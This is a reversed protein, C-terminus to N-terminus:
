LRIQVASFESVQVRPAAPQPFPMLGLLHKRYFLYMRFVTFSLACVCYKDFIVPGWVSSPSLSLASNSPTTLIPFQVLPSPLPMISGGTCLIDHLFFVCTVFYIWFIVIFGTYNHCLSQMRPSRRPYGGSGLGFGMPSSASTGSGFMTPLVTLSAGGLGSYLYVYYFVHM